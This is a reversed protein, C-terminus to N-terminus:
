KHRVVYSRGWIYPKYIMKRDDSLIPGSSDDIRWVPDYATGEPGVKRRFLMSEPTPVVRVLLPADGFRPDVHREVHHDGSVNEGFVDYVLGLGSGAVAAQYDEKIRKYVESVDTGRKLIVPGSWRWTPHVVPAPKVAKLGSGSRRALHLGQRRVYAEAAEDFIGKHKPPYSPFAEPNKNISQAWEEARSLETTVGPYIAGQSNHFLHGGLLDYVAWRPSGEDGVDVAVFRPASVTSRLSSGAPAKKKRRFKPGVLFKELWWV